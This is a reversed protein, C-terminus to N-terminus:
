ETVYEDLFRVKNLVVYFFTLLDDLNDNVSGLQSQVGQSATHDSSGGALVDRGSDQRNHLILLPM